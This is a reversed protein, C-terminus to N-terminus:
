QGVWLWCCQCRGGQLANGADVHLSEGWCEVCQAPLADQAADVSFRGRQPQGRTARYGAARTAAWAENAAGLGM